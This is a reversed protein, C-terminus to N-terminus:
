LVLCAVVGVMSILWRGFWKALNGNLMMGVGCIITLAAGLEPALVSLVDSATGLMKTLSATISDGISQTMSETIDAKIQEVFGGEHASYVFRM